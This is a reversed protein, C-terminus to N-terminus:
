HLQYPEAARRTLGAWRAAAHTCQAAALRALARVKQLRGSSAKADLEGSEVAAARADRLFAEQDFAASPM